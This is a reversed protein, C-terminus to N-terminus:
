HIDNLCFICWENYIYSLFKYKGRSKTICCTENKILDIEWFVKWIYFRCICYKVSKSTQCYYIHNTQSLNMLIIMMKRNLTATVHVHFQFKDVQLTRIMTMTFKLTRWKRWKLYHFRKLGHMTTHIDWGDYLTHIQCNRENCLNNAKILRPFFTM